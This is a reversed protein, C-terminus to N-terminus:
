ARKLGSFSSARLINARTSAELVQPEIIIFLHDCSTASSPKSFFKLGSAQAFDGTLKCAEHWNM